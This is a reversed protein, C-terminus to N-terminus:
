LALERNVPRLITVVAVPITEMEDAISRVPQLNTACGSPFASVVPLFAHSKMLPTGQATLFMISRCIGPPRLGFFCLSCCHLVAGRQGNETLMKAATVLAVNGPRFLFTM